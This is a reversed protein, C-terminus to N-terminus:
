KNIKFCLGVSNSILSVIYYGLEENEFRVRVHANLRLLVVHQRVRSIDSSRDLREVTGRLVPPHRGDFCKRRMIALRSTRLFTYYLVYDPHAVRWPRNNINRLIEDRFIVKHPKLTEVDRGNQTYEWEHAMQVCPAGSIGNMIKIVRGTRAFSCCEGHEHETDQLDHRYISLIGYKRTARLQQMYNLFTEFAYSGGSTGFGFNELFSTHNDSKYNASSHRKKQRHPYFSYNSCNYVDVESLTDFYNDHLGTSQRLVRNSTLRRADTQLAPPTRSLVGRLPVRHRSDFVGIIETLERIGAAM